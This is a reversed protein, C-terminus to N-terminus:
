ASVGGDVPLVQGTIAPSGILFVAAAAVEDPEIARRLPTADILAQQRADSLGATMASRMFGPSLANVTVGRGACELALSRTLAVVGAKSAAYATQGASGVAASPSVTNIIRGFRRALMGPLVARAIHFTGVLNVDIVSRWEDPSQGVLLGDRRCAGCHVVVDVLGLHDRVEVEMSQVSSWSALDASVVVAEKRCEGRLAAAAAANSRYHIAVSLGERDLARVVAAGLAGSAGTVLAVTPQRTM